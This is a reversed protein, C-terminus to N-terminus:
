NKIFVTINFPINKDKTLNSVPMDVSSFSGSNELAASFSVLSDRSSATGSLTILTGKKGQYSQNRYFSISSLLVGRNILDAIQSIVATASVQNLDTQVLALKSKIEEPLNLIEQDAPNNTLDSLTQDPASFSRGPTLFYAPFLLIIGILFSISVLFSVVIAFRMKFGKKLDDKQEKPLLNMTNKVPNM